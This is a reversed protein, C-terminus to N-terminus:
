EASGEARLEVREREVVTDTDAPMPDGTDVWPFAAAALKWPGGATAPAAALGGTHGAAAGGATYGAAASGASEASEAARIAIGGMAACALRPSPWRAHVPAATIRGLAEAIPVQEIDSGGRWGARTCADIWQAYAE